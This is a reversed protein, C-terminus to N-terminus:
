SSHSQRMGWFVEQLLLLSAAAGRREGLAPCTLFPLCCSAEIQLPADVDESFFVCDFRWMSLRDQIFSILPFFHQQYQSSSVRQLRSQSHM